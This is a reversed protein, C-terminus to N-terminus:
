RQSVTKDTAAAGCGCLCAQAARAMVACTDIRHPQRDHSGSAILLLARMQEPTLSPSIQQLLAVLGSVHAAAFSSGDVFGWRGQPLTTPVDRGPATVAQAPDSSDDANDSSVAIVGPHSAPFGGGPTQPDVAGVVSVGQLLAADLLMYLLKDQPGTVSLNIVTAGHALAFQLAKALTFSNCTATADAQWCARLAMLRAEPAVGAIGIGNDARAAIIGAVATGHAEAAYPSQDVFNKAVSIQGALDPHDMEVGSDVEAVSVKRGTTLTHVEGLHWSAAAPQLAFLPDNHSLSHFTNLPQAWATRADRGLAELVAPLSQGGEVRMLFCDVGLAAMPWDSEIVLGHAAALESAIRHRAAKGSQEDYGGGYGAEPRFHPPAVRLMVLIQQEEPAAAPGAPSQAQACCVAGAILLAAARARMM